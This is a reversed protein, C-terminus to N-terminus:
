SAKTVCRVSYGNKKRNTIITYVIGQYYYSVNYARVNDDEVPNSTWYIGSTFQNKGDAAGVNGSVSMSFPFTTSGLRSDPENSNSDEGSEIFHYAERFLLLRFTRLPRVLWIEENAM